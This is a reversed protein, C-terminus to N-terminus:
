RPSPTKHQDHSYQSYSWTGLGSEYNSDRDSPGSVPSLATGPRQQHTRDRRSAVQAADVHHAARPSRKRATWLEEESTGIQQWEFGDPEMGDRTVGTNRPGRLVKKRATRLAEQGSQENGM